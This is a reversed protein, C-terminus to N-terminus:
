VLKLSIIRRWFRQAKNNRSYQLEVAIGSEKLFMNFEFRKVPNFRDKEIFTKVRKHIDVELQQGM